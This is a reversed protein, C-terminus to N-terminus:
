STLGMQCPRRKALVCGLDLLEYNFQDFNGGTALILSCIHHVLKASIVKPVCNLLSSEKAGLEEVFIRSAYAGAVGHLADYSTFQLVILLMLCIDSLCM